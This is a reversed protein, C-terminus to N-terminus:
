MGAAAIQALVVALAGDDDGVDLGDARAHVHQPLYSAALLMPMNKIESFSDSTVTKRFSIITSLRLYLATDFFQFLVFYTGVNHNSHM